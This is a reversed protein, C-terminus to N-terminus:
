EPPPLVVHWADVLVNLSGVAQVASAHVTSSEPRAPVMSQRLPPVAVPLVPLQPQSQVFALPKVPVNQWSHAAPLPKSPTSLQTAHALGCNLLSAV